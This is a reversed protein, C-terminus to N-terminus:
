NTPKLFGNVSAGVIGANLPDQNQVTIKLMNQGNGKFELPSSFTIVATNSDTGLATIARDVLAIRTGPNMQKRAPASVEITQASVNIDTVVHYTLTDDERLAAYVAPYPLDNASVYVNFDVSITHDISEATTSVTMAYFSNPDIAPNFRVLEGEGSVYVLYEVYAFVSVNPSDTGFMQLVFTKGEPIVMTDSYSSDADVMRSTFWNIVKNGELQSEARNFVTWYGETTRPPLTNGTLWKWGQTVDDFDNEGDNIVIVQDAVSQFLFDDEAHQTLESQPITFYVESELERGLVFLASATVNKIRVINSM